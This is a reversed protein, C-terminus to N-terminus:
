NTKANMPVSTAASGSPRTKPLRFRESRDVLEISRDINTTKSADLVWVGHGLPRDLSLLNHLALDADARPLVVLPFDGNQEWAQLFLPDYGLLVDDSGTTAAIYAAASEAIKTHDIPRVCCANPESLTRATM